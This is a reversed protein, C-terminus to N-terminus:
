GEQYRDRVSEIADVATGIGDESRIAEGVAAARDRISEDETAQRVLAEIAAASIKRIPLPDPGAGIAAVRKGWFTQDGMVPTVITPTGGRLGAATTGAGGHHIVAAMKPFLWHNPITEVLYLDDAPDPSFGSRGTVMVIRRGCGRIGALIESGLQDPDRVVMSGFGVAVPAPGAELFAVLDSPPSWHPDPDLFWYGTVSSDAPWDDAKPVVSPSIALLTPPWSGDRLKFNGARRGRRPLGLDDTRWQMVIKNFPYTSLNLLRYSAKNLFAPPSVSFGPLPFAATPIMAPVPLGAVVPVSRAEGVHTAGLAKPHFVIVDADESTTMQDEMMRKMLPKITNKIMSKMKYPNRLAARADPTELLEHYDARIAAFTLGRDTVFSRFGPATAVTVEHGASILGLGLAMFPEVDGRTGVTQIVVKM